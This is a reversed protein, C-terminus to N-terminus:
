FSHESSPYSYSQSDDSASGGSPIYSTGGGRNGWGDHTTYRGVSWDFYAGSIAGSGSATHTGQVNGNSYFVTYSLNNSNTGGNTFYFYM